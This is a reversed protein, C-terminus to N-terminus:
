RVHLHCDYTKIASLHIYFCVQVFEIPFLSFNNSNTCLWNLVCAWFHACENIIICADHVFQKHDNLKYFLTWRKQYSNMYCQYKHLRGEEGSEERKRRKGGEITIVCHRCTCRMKEKQERKKEEMESKKKKKRERKWQLKYMHINKEGNM